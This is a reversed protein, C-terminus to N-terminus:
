PRGAGPGQDRVPYVPRFPVYLSPRRAARCGLTLRGGGPAAAPFRSRVSVPGPPQVAPDARVLLRGRQGGRDPDALLRWTVLCGV